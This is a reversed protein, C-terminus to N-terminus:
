QCDRVNAATQTCLRKGYTLRPLCSTNHAYTCYTFVQGGANRTHDTHVMVIGWVGGYARDMSVLRTNLIYRPAACSLRTRNSGWRIYPIGTQQFPLHVCPQIWCPCFHFLQWSRTQACSTGYPSCCHRRELILAARQGVVLTPACQLLDGDELTQAAFLELVTVSCPQVPNRYRRM